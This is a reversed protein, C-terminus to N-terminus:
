REVMKWCIQTDNGIDMMAKRGLLEDYQRASIEGTGPRKVWINDKTFHEGKAIPKISVVSAFAFDITVQEEEAARGLIIWHVVPSM